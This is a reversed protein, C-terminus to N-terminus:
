YRFIVLGTSLSDMWEKRNVAGNNDVDLREFLARKHKETTAADVDKGEQPATNVLFENNEGKSVPMDGKLFENLTIQEDKEIDMRKFVDDGSDAALAPATLVSLLLGVLVMRKMSGETIIEQLIDRVGPFGEPFYCLSPIIQFEFFGLHSIVSCCPSLVKSEVWYM